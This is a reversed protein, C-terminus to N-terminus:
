KNGRAAWLTDLYEERAEECACGECLESPHRSEKIWPCHKCLEDTGEVEALADLEWNERKSM